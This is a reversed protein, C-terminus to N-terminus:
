RSMCASFTLRFQVKDSEVIDGDVAVNRQADPNVGGSVTPLSTVTPIAERDSPSTDLMDGARIPCIM